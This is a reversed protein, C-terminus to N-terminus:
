KDTRVGAARDAIAHDRAVDITSKLYRRADPGTNLLVDIISVAQEFEGHLQPYAPYGSYDMWEVEINAREFKELEMYAKAAPGSLYRDAGLEQCIALLRDTKAGGAGLESSRVFPTSIGMERCLGELFHLNLDTLREMGEAQTYLTKLRTGFSEFYPARAYANAISQWHKDLFPLPMRMEDIKRLSGASKDVPVTLWKLGHQTKIRNRNHWHNRQPYQVDDYVVFVDVSGIIDFYGKWPLYCSQLIAIKTM